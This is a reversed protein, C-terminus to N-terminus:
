FLLHETSDTTSDVETSAPTGGVETSIMTNIITAVILYSFVVAAMVFLQPDDETFYSITCTSLMIIASIWNGIPMGWLWKHWAVHKSDYKAFGFGPNIMFWMYDEILFLGVIWFPLAWSFSVVKFTLVVVMVNMIVHYWTFHTGLFKTTPLKAAWGNEGEIQVELAAWLTGFLLFFGTEIMEAAVNQTVAVCFVISLVIYVYHLFTFM